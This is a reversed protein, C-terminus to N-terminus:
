RIESPVLERPQKVRDTEDGGREPLGMLRVVDSEGRPRHNSCVVIVESRQPSYIALRAPAGCVDCQKPPM